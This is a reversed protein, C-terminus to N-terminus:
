LEEGHHRAFHFVQIRLFLDFLCELDKVFIAIARDRRGIQPMDHGVETLYDGKEKKWFLDGYWGGTRISSSRQTCALLECVLLEVVHDTLCVNISVALDIIVTRMSDDAEREGCNRVDSETLRKMTFVEDLHTNRM